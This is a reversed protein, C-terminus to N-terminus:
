FEETRMSPKCCTSSQLAKLDFMNHESNVGYLWPGNNTLSQKSLFVRLPWAEMMDQDMEAPYTCIFSPVTIMHSRGM